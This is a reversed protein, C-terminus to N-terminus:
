FADRACERVIGRHLPVALRRRKTQCLCLWTRDFLRSLRDGGLAALSRQQHPRASSSVALVAPRRCTGYYSTSRQADVMFRILRENAGLDLAAESISRGRGVPVLQYMLLIGTGLADALSM